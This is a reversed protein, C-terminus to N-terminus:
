GTTRFATPPHLQAQKLLKYEFAGGLVVLCLGAGFVCALFRSLKGMPVESGDTAGLLSFNMSCFHEAERGAPAVANEGLM